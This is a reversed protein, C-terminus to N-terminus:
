LCFYLDLRYSFGWTGIEPVLHVRKYTTDMGRYGGEVIIMLVIGIYIISVMHWNKISFHVSKYATDMWLLISWRHPLVSGVFSELKELTVVGLM